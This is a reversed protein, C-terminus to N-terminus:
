LYLRYLGTQVIVIVNMTNTIASLKLKIMKSVNLHNTKRITLVTTKLLLNSIVRCALEKFIYENYEM